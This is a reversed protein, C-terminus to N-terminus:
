ARTDLSLIQRGSAAAADVAHEGGGAGNMIDFSAGHTVFDSKSGRQRGSCRQKSLGAPQRRDAEAVYGRALM